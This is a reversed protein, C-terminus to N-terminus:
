KQSMVSTPNVKIGRFRNHIGVLYDRWFLFVGPPDEYLERQFQYYIGKREERDLITRGKDLLKDVKENRYSFANFGGIIQSSHWLLYNKDPDDSIISLLTAEFEKKLLYNEYTPFSLPNVRIRIGIDLLQQQILSASERSVDDGNVILLAFKFQSGKRDLINDGNTDIWGSDSLLKLAKKPNYQYPKLHIDYAWSHPYITGSSSRGKGLLVREIIGEKNIAYNLAQRVKSDKFLSSKGNFVLIYSYLSLLSHVRLDPIREIIKYNKPFTFFILDLEKKMLEAWVSSQNPLIKVIIKDLHPRGLFYQKHSELVIENEFWSMLKYPGTGIPHYNFADKTIDKGKLLHKPLIGVDLYFLLSASPYKLEIEVQYKGTAEVKKIGRLLNLYLSNNKPDLINDLTFKVDEATLEVGDHFRINKRIYFIWHLGDPSITWSFALNPEVQLKETVKSLGDFIIDNLMASITSRTLIPNIPSPKVFDGIILTDGYEKQVQRKSFSQSPFLIVFLTIFLFLYIRLLVM